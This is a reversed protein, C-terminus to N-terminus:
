KDSATKSKNAPATAKKASVLKAKDGYREAEDASLLVTHVMGYPLEVEYERTESM